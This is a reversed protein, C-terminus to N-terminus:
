RMFKLAMLNCPRYFSIQLIACRGEIALSCLFTFGILIPKFGPKLFRHCASFFGNLDEVHELVDFSFVLDVPEPLGIKELLGAHFTCFVPNLAPPDDPLLIAARNPLDPALTKLLAERHLTTIPFAQFEVLHVHKAGLGLMMDAAALCDGCGIEAATFDAPLDQPLQPLLTRCIRQHREVAHDLGSGLVPPGFKNPLGLANKIRWRFGYLLAKLVSGFHLM